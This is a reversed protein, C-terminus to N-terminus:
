ISVQAWRDPSSALLQLGPCVKLLLHKFTKIKAKQNFFKDKHYRQCRVFIERDSNQVSSMNLQIVEQIKVQCAPCETWLTSLFSSILPAFRDQFLFFIIGSFLFLTVWWITIQGSVVWLILCFFNLRFGTPRLGPVQRSCNKLLSYSFWWFPFSNQRLKYHLFSLHTLNLRLNFLLLFLVFCNFDFYFHHYMDFCM